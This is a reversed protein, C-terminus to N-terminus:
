EHRYMKQLIGIAEKTTKAGDKNAKKMAKNVMEEVTDSDVDDGYIQVAFDYAADRVDEKDIAENMTKLYTRVRNEWMGRRSEKQKTEKKRQKQEVGKQAQVIAKDVQSLNVEKSLKELEDGIKQLSKKASARGKDDMDKLTPVKKEWGKLREILNNAKYLKRYLEKNHKELENMKKKETPIDSSAKKARKLLKNLTTNGIRRAENLQTSEQLSSDDDVKQIKKKTM